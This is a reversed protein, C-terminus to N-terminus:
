WKKTLNFQYKIHYTFYNILCCVVERTMSKSSFLPTLYTSFDLKTNRTSTTTERSNVLSLIWSSKWFLTWCICWHLCQWAHWPFEEVIGISALCFFIRSILLLGFDVLNLKRKLICGSGLFHTKWNIKGGYTSQGVMWDIKFFSREWVFQVNIWNRWSNFVAIKFESIFCSSSYDFDCTASIKHWFFCGWGWGWCINFHYFLFHLSFIQGIENIKSNSVLCCFAEFSDITSLAFFDSLLATDRKAIAM